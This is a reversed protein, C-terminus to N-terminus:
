FPVDDGTSTTQANGEAPNLALEIGQRLYPDLWDQNLLWQCYGFDVSPLEKLLAGKAKGFPMVRPIRCAESYAHLALWTTIEPGETLIFDLLTANNYVDALASHADKLMKRTEQTAGCLMYLLASQSYSDADQWIYRAMADTCIRKIPPEGAVRWDFDVNHGIIYDTYDPLSFSDSPDCDDLEFPLINHVAMAGFNIRKTPKYRQVFENDFDLPQPVQDSEGALDVVSEVRVWAAEILEPEDKDTTETDFILVNAM